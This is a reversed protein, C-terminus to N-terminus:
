RRVQAGVRPDAVNAGGWIAPDDFVDARRRRQAVDALVANVTEATSASGLERATAALHEDNIDITTRSVSPCIARALM